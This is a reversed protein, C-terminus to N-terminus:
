NMCKHEPSGVGSGKNKGHVRQSRRFPFGDVGEPVIREPLSSESNGSVISTGGGTFIRRGEEVGQGGTM